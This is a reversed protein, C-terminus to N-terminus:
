LITNYNPDSRITDLRDRRLSCDTALLYHIVLVTGYRLACHLLSVM